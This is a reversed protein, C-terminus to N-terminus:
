WLKAPWCGPRKVSVRRRSTRGELLIRAETIESFQLAPPILMVTRKLIEELSIGPSELLASIGYLCNLEKYREQLSEEAQKRDSIDRTISVMHPIGQLTILKASLIGVIQSGDKRQFLAEFNECFGKEGLENVVRKRDAPNKWISIDAISKGVTEDRSFGTAATFGENINVIIGDNFRAILSADPSTNFILEVDTKADSIGANLRQNIMIILGFTLLLGVIIADMYGAVNFLTPVDFKDIPTGALMMVARFTFYCGYVMFVAATFNASATIDRTKNVFLGQASLFSVAALAAAILIGRVQINNDVWIFYLFPVIFLAIISIVIWRNEKKDLFRMLGIYLFIVGLVLLSNQAIMAMTDLSPIGRLLMFSFAIVGMASWMLWWGVGPITKNIRYQHIFVVVQIIRTIGLVFILTRIDFSM